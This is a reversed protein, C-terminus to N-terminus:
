LKSDTEERSAREEAETKPLDEPVEMERIETVVEVSRLETPEVDITTEKRPFLSHFREKVELMYKKQLELRKQRNELRVTDLESNKQRRLEQLEVRKELREKRAEERRQRGAIRKDERRQMRALRNEEWRKKRAIRAEERKRRKQNRKVAKRAIQEIEKLDGRAERLKKREGRYPNYVFYSGTGLVLLVMGVGTFLPLLFQYQPLGMEFCAFVVLMVPFLLFYFVRCFFNMLKGRKGEQTLLAGEIGSAALMFLCIQSDFGHLYACVVVMLLSMLFLALACGQYYANKYERMGQLKDRTLGHLAYVQDNLDEMCDENYRQMQRTHDMGADISRNRDDLIKQEQFLRERAEDEIARQKAVQQEVWAARQVRVSENEVTEDPLATKDTIEEVAMKERQVEKM